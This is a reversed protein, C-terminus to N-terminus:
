GSPLEDAVTDKVSPYSLVAVALFLLAPMLVVALQKLLYATPVGQNHRGKLANLLGTLASAGARAGIKLLPEPLPVIRQEASLPPAWAPKLKAMLIVYLVYLGALMVGPFFAGAYLKVVSVGATAGYVILLVSPPILIGLCGGATIAGAALRTDYGGKLMQPLALL